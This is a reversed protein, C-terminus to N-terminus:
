STSVPSTELGEEFHWVGFFREIDQAGVDLYSNRRDPTAFHREPPTRTQGGVVYVRSHVDIPLFHEGDERKTVVKPERQM